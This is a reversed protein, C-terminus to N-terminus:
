GSTSKVTKEVVSLEEEAKAKQVLQVNFELRDFMENKNVKGMLRFQEGLLETKIEEFGSPNEKFQSLEEENKGLLHNTQNKWFVCRINSTGDDVVANMVYSLVGEEGEQVRRGTEPHVYFFRPDFVQVITGLVEVNTEGANLEGIQKRQFDASRRVAEVQVGEPNLDFSGTKGLHIEKNERNEKVFVDNLQLIDDENVGTLEDVQENWFVVKITGTEDGLILSCVKGVRGGTNFEKTEYKRVIKGMTSIGRMGAYIEKIKLKDQNKPALEIGLENAIIHTAGGESILGSLENIKTKIKGELQVSTLKGSAIIKAKLDELPIKYM